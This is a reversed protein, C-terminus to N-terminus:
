KALAKPPFSPYSTLVSPMPLLWKGDQFKAVGELAKYARDLEDLSSALVLGGSNRVVIVYGGVESGSPSVRVTLACGGTSPTRMVQKVTVFKLFKQAAEINEKPAYEDVEVPYIFAQYIVSGMSPQNPRLPSEKDNQPINGNPFSCGCILVVVACCHIITTRMISYTTTYTFSAPESKAKRWVIRFVTDWISVPIAEQKQLRM